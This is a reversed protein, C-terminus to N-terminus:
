ANLIAPEVHGTLARCHSAGRPLDAMARRFAIGERRFSMSFGAWLTSRVIAVDVAMDRRLHNRAALGCAQAFEM